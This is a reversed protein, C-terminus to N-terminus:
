AMMPFVSLLFVSITACGGVEYGFGKSKLLLEQASRPTGRGFAKWLTTQPNFSHLFERIRKMSSINVTDTNTFRPQFHTTSTDLGTYQYSAVVVGTPRSVEMNAYM